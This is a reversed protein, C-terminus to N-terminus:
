GEEPPGSAPGKPGEAEPEQGSLIEDALDPYLKRVCDPCLGHSFVADSHEALYQEVEQWYGQDDRIKKCSACIPLLGSLTNVQALAEQLEHILREREEEAARQQTIDIGTAIVYEVRGQPDLLVTNAWAILRSTGDRALWRNEHRTPYRGALLDQFVKRTPEIEEEPLLDWVLRGKVEEAEYGTAEECARNFQVIRGERDLVVVLAGATQLVAATFDRERQLAEEMQKRQTIDRAIGLVLTQREVKLPIARIEVPILRGDKRRLTLEDPGTAQGLVNRALIAAAKPVDEPVLIGAELFSRGILEERSYGVMEEAARNGDVFRGQLDNLYLADPALEFLAQFREQSARLEEELRRWATVVHFIVVQGIPDGAQGHLPWIRLEYHRAEGQVAVTLTARDARRRCSPWCTRVTPWCRPSPASSCM